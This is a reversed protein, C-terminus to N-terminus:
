SQAERPTLSFLFLLRSTSDSHVARSRLPLRQAACLPDEQDWTLAWGRPAFGPWWDTVNHDRLLCVGKGRISPNPDLMGIVVRAIKRDILREACPLKPDRRSTCPELTTYVTCGALSADGLKKELVTFEAHDCPYEEGHFGTKLLEDGRAVVAGVQPHVRDPKHRSKRGEELAMRM